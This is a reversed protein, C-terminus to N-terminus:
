KVAFMDKIIREANTAREELGKRLKREAVEMARNLAANAEAAELRNIIARVEISEMLGNSNRRQMERYDTM